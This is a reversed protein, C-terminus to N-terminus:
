TLLKDIAELVEEPTILDMCQKHRCQPKYCPACELDKRIVIGNKVPPLHRRPDTAGFLAVFPVKMAAAIHLPASDTCVYVSCRKILCSLQNVTTKGCAIIPKTSKIVAHIGGAECADKETGTIVLRMARQGLAECLKVLHHFPWSKTAWRSSASMNIGILKQNASLWQSKLFEDIYEEDEPRPWLELAPNKLDIGLLKLIRFQHTIPDLFPKEDPIGHNLLFGFKKNAYGYRNLSLSLRSLIHSTRNNQLDIVIDFNKRALDKGLRLLGGIGKDKEKFDYMLLEDIYPCGILCNKYEPNVLLSIAHHHGSTPSNFKERIARLAASSLIIDGLSSLKIILLKHHSLAETYIALTSDVMREVNYKEKVKKFAAQALLAALKKDQFIKVTAEAISDADAPPVLQGTRGDEIIDAAGGVQTAVVPVGAAQAEIIVRGFAEPTTTAMVVLDLSALIGPIDRQNGLFQTSNGLGLRKVLIQLEEKYTGKSEPADGIIWIKLNPISKVAKAMAKIFYTHGKLPTIRGIIGVNFDEKRKEDPSLYTFKELDVSRPVLRIREHPCNFDDIMHRGIVNSLVIVRKAWGMVYSFPHKRYYGHCTTIFVVGTRRAALYAAWAPVRSRAHVIEINEKKIIQVLEPISRLISFISKKHVPLQYHIGGVSELEKVLEGGASVVVAKHGYRVLYKALDITGTEVGGVNLEPLIQLINM